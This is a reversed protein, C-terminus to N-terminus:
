QHVRQLAVYIVAMSPTYEAMARRSLTLHPSGFLRFRWLAHRAATSACCQQPRLFFLSQRRRLQQPLMGNTIYTCATYSSNLDHVKFFLFSAICVSRIMALHHATCKRSDSVDPYMIVGNGTHLSRLSTHAPPHRCMCPALKFVFRLVSTFKPFTFSFTFGVLTLDLPQFRHPM